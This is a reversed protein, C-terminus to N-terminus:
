GQNQKVRYQFLALNLQITRSVVSFTPAPKNIEAGQRSVERRV